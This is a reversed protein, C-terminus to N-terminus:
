YGIAFWSASPDCGIVTSFRTFSVVTSYNISPVGAGPRYVSNAVHLCANPFAIPFTLTRWGAASNYVGWQLLLGNSLYMYGNTALSNGTDTLIENWSNNQRVSLWGHWGSFISGDPMGHTPLIQTPHPVLELQAGATIFGGSGNPADNSLRARIATGNSSLADVGRGERSIATIADKTYAKAVVGYRTNLPTDTGFSAVFYDWSEAGQPRIGISALEELGAGADGFFQMENNLGDIVMREGTDATQLTHGTLTGVNIKDANLSLIKASSITADAIKAGTVALNAIYATGIATAAFYSSINLSTIMGPLNAFAGTNVTANDAPIGTGSVENWDQQANSIAAAYNGNVDLIINGESDRVTLSHFNAAGLKDIKWGTYTTVESYNDSQIHGSIKANTVALNAIKAETIGLNAIKATTVELNAIKARHISADVINATDVALLGIKANTIATNQIHATGVALNAIAASGVAALGIKASTIAADVIKASGIAANAILATTIAALQIHSTGVALNAIKTSDVSLNALKSSDVALAAIKATKILGTGIVTDDNIVNLNSDALLGSIKTGGLDISFDAIKAATVAASALDSSLVFGTTGPTGASANFASPTGTTSVSRLWYYRTQNTGIVHPYIVDETTAVVSALSIDDVDAAWIQTFSFNKTPNTWSLINTAMAGNVVLDSPKLVQLEIVPVVTMPSQSIANTKSVDIVGADQLDKVTLVKDGPNGRIGMQTEIIQKYADMVKNLAPDSSRYVPISRLRQSGM